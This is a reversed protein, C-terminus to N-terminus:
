KVSWIRFLLVSPLTSKQHRKQKVPCGTPKECKVCICLKPYEQIPVKPANLLARKDLGRQVRSDLHFIDIKFARERCSSFTM